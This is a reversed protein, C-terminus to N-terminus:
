LAQGEVETKLKATADEATKWHPAIVLVREYVKLAEAKKDRADLINAMGILAGIQRPDRKLTEAIDAMAGDYDDDLFRVTARANWAEPQDPMFGVAADLIAEADDYDDAAAAKRARDLLLDGTDSGSRGYATLILTVLGDTEDEDTSAQLRTYLEDRIQAPTRPASEEAKPADRKADGAAFAQCAAASFAAATLIALLRM